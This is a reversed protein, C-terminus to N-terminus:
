LKQIERGIDVSEKGNDASDMDPASGIKYELSWVIDVCKYGSGLSGLNYWNQEPPEQCLKCALLGHQVKWNREPVKQCLKCPLLGHQM